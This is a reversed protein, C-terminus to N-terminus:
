ALTVVVPLHDSLYRNGPLALAAPEALSYNMIRSLLTKRVWVYDIRRAHRRTHTDLDGCGFAPAPDTFDQAEMFAQLMGGPPANFDGCVIDPRPPAELMGRLEDLRAQAATEPSSQRGSPLHVNCIALAGAADPISLKFWFREPRQVAAADDGAVSGHRFCCAGGYQAYTQGARYHHAMGLAQALTTAAEASQIEQLCLLDPQFARYLDALGALVEPNPAGPNTGEFPMGQMWYTNHTVITLSV